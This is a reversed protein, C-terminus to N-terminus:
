HSLSLPNRFPFFSRSPGHNSCESSDMKTLSFYNRMGESSRKVNDVANGWCLIISAFATYQPLFHWFKIKSHVKSGKSANESLSNPSIKGNETRNKWCFIANGFKLISIVSEQCLGCKVDEFHQNQDFIFMIKFWKYHQM